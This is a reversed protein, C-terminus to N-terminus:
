DEFKRKKAKRFDNKLKSQQINKELLDQRMGLVHLLIEHDRVCREMEEFCKLKNEKTNEKHPQVKNMISNVETNQHPTSIFKM